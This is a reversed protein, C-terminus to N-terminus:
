DILKLKKAELLPSPSIQYPSKAFSSAFDKTHFQGGTTFLSVDM